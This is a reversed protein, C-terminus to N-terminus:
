ARGAESAPQVAALESRRGREICAVPLGGSYVLWRTHGAPVRPGPTLIGALNLPDAASVRLEPGAGTNKREARLLPIAEPLAFQEGMFGAVFRGGRVLGRAELRRLARHVHRWGDPVWERALVDRFVVGYRRLLRQATAEARTELDPEEGLPALLSWRGEAASVGVPLPRGGRLPRRRSGRPKGALLRRLPAFGDCSILGRAILEKLGEEVQVPLGLGAAMIEGQFSAGRAQLLGLIKQAPGRPAADPESAERAACHLLLNLEARPFLAIPTVRTPKAGAELSRVCLRGWAVAGGLCLADLLEPRYGDIRPALLDSEWAAAPAEFAALQEIVELAGSEGM